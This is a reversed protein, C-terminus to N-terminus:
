AFDRVAEKTAILRRIEPICSGCNTGAGLQRGIKEVSRNGRTAAAAIQKAGVQFCVCVIPGDDVAGAVPNGALLDRREGPAIVAAEFRSRLWDPAPLKPGAGMFLVAELRGDRLVAARYTGAAADQLTMTEGAPMTAQLWASCGMSPADLAFNLSHGFVARAHAWYALVDPQLRQRSLLFGYHTVPHPAIRAPTAKAEPQGSHPDTAGQVLAGIRGASSNEASWHMPVFLSGPLQGRNVLVRLVAAGHETTVQALTGQELRLHAADVPHIEVFPEAIHTSLRPSLGTRTMTHWQDRIRGTNLVFPWADSVSASLRPPAIAVFRAMRDKTFFGGEAFLRATPADGARLPWQFPALADFANKGAGAAGSIDFARKGANEFGSLRAHEEFIEAASRYAFAQGYGMRQAVEGLMWWDPRASGPLPLFARQRSICRESNTVTGDKEGWAAAPLRVHAQAITDNSTVNESVVLLDLKAL